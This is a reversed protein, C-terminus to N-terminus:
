FINILDRLVGERIGVKISSRTVLDVDRGLKEALFNKLRVFHFLGVPKSFEVMLDIDSDKKAEGRAMSGFMGISSVNYERKLLSKLELIKKVEKTPSQLKRKGPKRHLLDKFGDISPGSLQQLLINQGDTFVYFKTNKTVGIRARIRSPLVVQGKSSLSTVEYDKIQSM